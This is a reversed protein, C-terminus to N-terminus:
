GVENSIQITKDTKTAYRIIPPHKGFVILVGKVKKTTSVQKMYRRLQAFCEKQKTYFNINAKLELIVVETDTEVTLDLRGYAFVFGDSTKYPINVEKSVVCEPVFKRLYHELVKQFHNEKYNLNGPLEAATREIALKIWNM